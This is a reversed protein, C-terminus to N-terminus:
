VGGNALAARALDRMEEAAADACSTSWGKEAIVELVERLRDREAVLAEWGNVRERILAADAPRCVTAVTANPGHIMLKDFRNVTEDGSIRGNMVANVSWPRATAMSTDTTM